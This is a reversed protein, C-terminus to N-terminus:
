KSRTPGGIIAARRREGLTPSSAPPGGRFTPQRWFQRGWLQGSFAGAFESASRYCGRGAESWLQFSACSSLSRALLLWAPRRGPMPAMGARVPRPRKHRVHGRRLSSGASRGGDAAPRFAGAAPASDARSPSSGPRNAATQRSRRRPASRTPSASPSAQFKRVSRRGLRFPLPLDMQIRAPRVERRVARHQVPAAAFPSADEHEVGAGARHEGLNGEVHLDASRLEVVAIRDVHLQGAIPAVQVAGIHGVKAHRHDIRLSRRATPETRPPVTDMRAPRPPLDRAPPWCRTTRTCRRAAEAPRRIGIAAPQRPRREPIGAFLGAVAHLELPALDGSQAVVIHGLRKGYPAHINRAGRRRPNRVAPLRAQQNM